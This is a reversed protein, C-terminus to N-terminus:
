SGRRELQARADRALVVGDIEPLEDRLEALDGLVSELDEGNDGPASLDARVLADALADPDIGRRRAEAELLAYSADQLHVTRTAMVASELAKLAEGGLRAELAKASRVPVVFRGSRSVCKCGLTSDARELAYNHILSVRRLISAM